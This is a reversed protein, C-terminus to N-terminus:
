DDNIAQEDKLTHLLEIIKTLETEAEKFGRCCAWQALDQLLGDTENDLDCRRFKTNPVFKYQDDWEIIQNEM